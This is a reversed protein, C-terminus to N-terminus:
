PHVLEPRYIKLWEVIQRSAASAGVLNSASGGELVVTMAIKPGDAPLFGIFWSNVYKGSGIEATGTKGAVKIGLGSLARATGIQAALEMGERVVKLNEPNLEVVKRIKPANKLITKDGEKIERVLQPQLIKGGNAVAATFVAMQLPTVQLNGQGISLNYTDGIRWIPDEKNTEAKWEPGPVLGEKEAPLDIGTREGLGFKKAWEQIKKVGLGEVDGFGGGVSYFYVNSSVALARRMDVWGHAKWDYFISPSEPRFPNPLSISGNAFIQKEPNITKEELAALALLPKIASGAPYLGSVARNFLPKSENSLIKEVKERPGGESLTEPNFAPFSVLSLIEGSFPDLIVASGGKFGRTEVVNRVSEFVKEQM